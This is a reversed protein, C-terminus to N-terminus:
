WTGLCLKLSVTGRGQCHSVYVTVLLNSCGDFQRVGLMLAFIFYEEWGFKEILQEKNMLNHFIDAYEDNAM